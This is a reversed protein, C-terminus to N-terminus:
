GHPLDRAVIWTVGQNSICDLLRRFDRRGPVRLDPELWFPHFFFSAVGDRVARAYRANECITQWTYNYNSTPDINSIDYEINGLNEPLIGQGYYDQEIRYPYYQGAWYDGNSLSGNDSTYYVRREYNNSFRQAFAHYAAPSAQYHPTTWAYATFGSGSLEALGADLRGLAWAQSDEAVPTQNVINWFEFDDGSVASHPNPQNSYQHTYGHMVISGGHATANTLASRLDAAGPDALHIEDPVGGNYTGLPDRYFPITAVSFPIGRSELDSVVRQMGLPYVLAGVDELRVMAYHVEGHNIGLIDHLLDAVVLYRDRPHIYSFPMDAFYWFNGAKMVYPVEAGTGSNRVNVLAQAKAPDVVRTVGIDPDAFITNSAADFSYYKVMQLGDFLVTDYFGPAPNAATPAANMGVLGDFAVGRTETFQYTPNWALQWINNKFWVVTKQTQSVDSLFPAPVPNDFYSGLYFTTQYSEIQGSAYNQIPVMEVDLDFHGLLNRLLIAYAKGLKGFADSPRYDYLVLADAARAQPLTAGAGVAILAAAAVMKVRNLLM